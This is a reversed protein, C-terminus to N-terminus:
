LAQLATGSYFYLAEHPSPGSAALLLSKASCGDIELAASLEGGVIEAITPLWDIGMFPTDCVQGAPIHGPWSALCPVRMGGEFTTLKGERLPAASGAHEGYSLFPGNDSIFILLTNRDLNLRQLTKMIEGVSWDLEQIVDGYAGLESKGRFEASAFIPVHPMVHLLYLFFPRGANNEIFEMARRTFRSTFQSHDPDLEIENLGDYLPLPPM